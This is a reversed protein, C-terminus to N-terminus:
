TPLALQTLDAICRDYMARHSPVLPRLREFFLIGAPVLSSVLDAVSISADADWKHSSSSLAITVRGGRPRFVIDIPMGPYGTAFERGAVVESVGDILYAWLQDVYDIMERRLIPKRDITLEIAGEVYHDDVITGVFEEVPLLKNAVKILSRVVVM